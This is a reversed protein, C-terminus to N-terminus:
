KGAVSVLFEGNTEFSGQRGQHLELNSASHVAGDDDNVAANLLGLAVHRVDPDAAGFALLKEAILAGQTAIDAVTDSWYPLAWPLSM